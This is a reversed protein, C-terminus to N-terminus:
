PLLLMAERRVRPLSLVATNRLVLAGGGGWRGGALSWVSQDTIAGASDIGPGTTLPSLTFVRLFSARGGGPGAAGGGCHREVSSDTRCKSDPHVFAGQFSFLSDTVGTSVFFISCPFTREPIFLPVGGREGGGRSVYLSINAPKVHRWSRKCSKQVAAGRRRLVYHIERKKAAKDNQRKLAKDCTTMASIFRSAGAWEAGRLAVGGMRRAM